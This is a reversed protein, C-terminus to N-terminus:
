TGKKRNTRLVRSAAFGTGAFPHRPSDNKLKFAHWAGGVKQGILGSQCQVTVLPIMHISALLQSPSELPQGILFPLLLHSYFWRIV